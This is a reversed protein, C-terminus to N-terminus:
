DMNTFKGWTILKNYLKTMYGDYFGPDILNRAIGWIRIIVKYGPLYVAIMGM